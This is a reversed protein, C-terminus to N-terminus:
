NGGVSKFKKRDNTYIIRKILLRDSGFNILYGLEYDSNKLYDYIQCIMKKTIFELSKIEIVIKNDIVLDPRYVGIFKGTKPSFIKISEQKNFSLKRISLEEELAKQYIAEKHGSGYNKSVEIAAGQVQYSLDKYLLKKQYM